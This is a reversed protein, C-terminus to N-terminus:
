SGLISIMGSAIVIYIRGCMAVLYMALWPEKAQRQYPHAEKGSLLKEYSFVTEELHNRNKVCIKPIM